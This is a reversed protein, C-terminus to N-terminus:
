SAPKEAVSRRLERRKLSARTQCEDSCYLAVSHMRKAKQKKSEPIEANCHQCPRDVHPIRALQQSFDAHGIHIERCDFCTYAIILEGTRQSAREAELEARAMTRYVHKGQCRKVHDPNIWPERIM